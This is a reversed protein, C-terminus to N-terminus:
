CQRSIANRASQNERQGYTRRPADVLGELREAASRHRWKGVTVRDCGLEDAIKTNPSGDACALAIRSRLALAQSSSHRRSWRVPMEREKDTLEIAVTPRGARGIM